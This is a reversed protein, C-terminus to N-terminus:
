QASKLVIYGTHRTMNGNNDWVHLVYFYSGDPLLKGTGSGKNAQGNFNNSQNHYNSTSYITGGWRNVIVIENRSYKEINEIILVDNKGDGNPSLGKHVRIELDPVQDDNLIAGIATRKTGLVPPQQGTAVTATKLKLAFYEDSEHVIDGIVPVEIEAEDSLAPIIIQKVHDQFDEGARARQPDKDAGAGEFADAFEYELVITRTSQRSLIVKFPMIEVGTNSEQVRATDKSFSIELADNDTVATATNSSSGKGYTQGAGSHPQIALNVFGNDDNTENDILNLIFSVETEGAPITVTLNAGTRPVTTTVSRIGDHQLSVTVPMDASPAQSAKLTVSLGAGETATTSTFIEVTIVDNDYLNVSATNQSAVPWTIAPLSASAATLQINVTETGELLIDDKPTINIVAEKSGAPITVTGSLTHYDTGAAATGSVTYTVTVPVSATLQTNAFRVRVSGATSPETADAIKEVLISRDASTENDTINLSASKVADLTTSVTNGFYVFSGATLTVQVTETGEVIHDDVVTVPVAIASTGAKIVATGSLASYDTASTATGSVSYLVTVDYPAPAAGTLQISFSGNASPEAGDTTKIVTVNLAPAPDGPINVQASPTVTFGAAIGTLRLIEDAETLHDQIATLDITVKNQDKAILAAPTITFDANVANFAGDAALNIAIPLATTIGVPLSLVMKSTNGEHLTTSDISITIQRNAPNLGTVDTIQIDAGSFTFGAPAGGDVRITEVPEIIGDKVASIDFEASSNTMAPITISVPIQTHDTDAATSTAATKSMTVTIPTGSVIGDPLKVKFDGTADEAISSGDPVLSIVTNLPDLSTADEISITIGTVSFGPATGSLQLTELLELINDTPATIDFTTSHQGGPITVSAPLISHDSNIASSLADKIINVQIDSAATLAGPLSVTITATGSGERITANSSTFSIAGGFNADQVDLLVTGIFTFGTSSPILELKEVPEIIADTNIDLTLTGNSSGAPITVTVPIGGAIDAANVAPTATGQTLQIVIANETTVGTPLSFTYVVQNGETAVGPGNVTITKVSVDTITVDANDSSTHGAITVTASLKLLESSEIINDSSVNVDFETDSDGAQITVTAPFNVDATTLGASSGTAKSLNITIAQTSTVGAPLSVKLKVMGGEAVTATAPTLTIDVPGSNDTITVTTGTVPIGLASSGDFVVTEDAELLVDTNAALTFTGTTAGANITITGLVGHETNGATSAANKSLTVVINGTSLVGGKLTATIVTSSGEAVNVPAASLEINASALDQDTIDFSVPQSFTFGGTASPTLILKETTEILNDTAPIFNVDVYAAGAPIVVAPLSQLDALAATSSGDRTLSVTIASTSTIGTPLAFRYTGTAGEAITAPGTVTITKNSVDTITVDAESASTYGFVTASSALKLLEAGEIVNDATGTVDFEIEGLGAPITVTAPFNVDGADLSASSGAGKSLTVIIPQISTIGAPLIAKIKVLGGEAVTATAPTLTITKNVNTGTADTITVTTGTVAIGQANTGEIVVTENAELLQDTGTTLTFAGTTSGANITITGLAGHETSGATSSANRSLAITLNNVSTIGGNLTATIVSSTGEAVTAPTASLTISAGTLDMDTIAFSVDQTFTYGGAASPTLTINELGEILNDDAAEIVVDVFGVGAPIVIPSINELDAMVATSSGDRNLTITIASTSTVGTPLAFHYTGTAGEAITAPGAVTITKDTADTITIDATHTSTYGFVTASSALKLLEAGEIVNDATGTVDFEIEGLGAPITVTAPFNVDSADLSASSGAGKSLTVVIPQISIIGAPLTAKIKVLGGETVTATSPTLTITKNANTGTADTITVTTGAVAIGEANTGEIVVTENTELLQDTGTTLTFTGTTSGANITITGLTGHEADAATSSSNKSLTVLINSASLVGGNLTATIVSSTGEAVSAPAASLAISAGALDQDTINFIVSQTFTYGGAASPTLVLNETSEILDGTVPKFDVDVYATNAPIVVSPLSQLDALAATSSGDRTLTITIASTSTVGTPLAFHYTGTTGEAITAPGTVTITKDTADTITIDAADTSTQGFATASSSLKLLEDAEILNDTEGEVDFEIEGLGAPITVTAPFNVDGADLSASSGAGKSLTVVIAQSTTIGTPLKAKIKIVGGEAVTATVPTLTIDAPGSNDTITVTAGTVAIGQANTGEVIVTEANELLQDTDTTLTFTGTTAGANITITGLTGHEADDATSGSNKSLTITLNNVSTIGGNLTATIVSSTGEAVSAPSASLTISAGALDMDTIAFSVDQTFTYGGAASPTLTINELGEILNDDAAEIVVDVFGVGAPIVIPAINELDALAATSSGDRTLTITIASTSTVGAPLAFHYTETTGEAITAPGTVTITKDTADTITIDAADTSTQGFATASSSLKLLEDTEILNDTEGTVDFEFENGGIPITVTAPFTVDSADLSASSGAGKSLTVVIAQSTTIGTPLKAKIKIVGGEAVTATVPTLIIDAPGSNDTITVTAGTVAIGQANTGEVIVTENTELLQDTGATLTFTGTTAGATITITGLTGHEADDATSAANKSLTITLNNVSTIGGNLTATIVSSTGEAVSAPSASLTISAGALDMDTIAFSVDQTFTYGGAASPTLTINELGEILNDDTAEIVVDVFGVGAPIVIPAINELDAMVATSSGDRTLTITIASTSTVGTPLAFHYTETTGEAITAPGTVTITRDTADTITIDAADTSTQGFATASSSLKLLEDTEILNDTEGEVDFEIEGTNVPITVTAPFTVDAIALSASSGAGRGLTVTIAQSTTIGDRLKAKIKIVGGEAGTATAPTLTVTKNANTGTVDTITIDTGQVTYGGSASGRVELVENPELIDDATAQINVKASTHGAEIHITGLASHDGAGATSTGGSSLVVDIDSTSTFGQLTATVETVTGEAVSLPNASLQILFGAPNTDVVDLSVQQSFTYDTALLQMNLHEPGEVLADSKADFSVDVFTTGPNITATLPYGGNFDAGSTTTGPAPTLTIDIPVMTTVGPPLAIKYDISNGETVTTAGTVVLATNAPTKSQDIISVSGNDTVAEDFVTASASIELEEVPEIINDTVANLLFDIEGAGAPIKVPLAYNYDGSQIGPDSGIGQALTITIEESTKIGDPLRVWVRVNNGENVNAADPEVRIQKNAVNASTVDNITFALGQVTFGTATGTLNLTEVRELLGDDTAAIDFTISPTGNLITVTSPTVAYDDDGATSGSGTQLTINIDATANGSELTATVTRVPQGELMVPDGVSFIIKTSAADTINIVRPPTTTFATGLINSSAVVTLAETSETIADAVAEVDFTVDNQGVPITVTAPLIYDGASVTTGAATSLTVVVPEQSSLGAKLKVRMQTTQGETINVLTQPDLIIQKNSPTRSSLDRIIISGNVFTFGSVNGTLVLTEDSELIANDGKLQITFPVFNANPMFTVTLPLPTNFDNLDSTSSPDMVLTLTFSSSFSLGAPLSIRGNINQTGAGENVSSATFTITFERGAPNDLIDLYSPIITYAGYGDSASADFFWFEQDELMGDDQLQIDYTADQGNAPITLSLPFATDLDGGDATNAPNIQNIAIVLPAETTVGAPLSATMTVTTGEAGQPVTFTIVRNDPNLHTTDTITIDTTHVKPDGGISTTAEIKLLEDTELVLDGVATLEFEVERQGAPITVQAPMGSYDSTEATSAGLKALDIVLPTLLLGGTLKVKVKTKEGEQLSTEEPEIFIKNEDDDVITYVSSTATGLQLHPACTPAVLSVTFSRNISSQTTNGIIEIPLQLQENIYTGPLIIIKDQLVRYDTNLVAPNAGSPTVQIELVQPLNFSANAVNLFLGTIPHAADGEAVDVTPAPNLNLEATEMMMNSWTIELNPDMMYLAGMEAADYGVAIQKTDHSIEGPIDSNFMNLATHVAIGSNDPVTKITNSLPYGNGARLDRDPVPGAYYSIFGQETTKFVHTGSLGSPCDAGSKTIGVMRPTYGTVSGSEIYENFQVDVELDKFGTGCTEGNMWAAESLYFHVWYPGGGSANPVGEASSLYYNILYYSKGATYVYETSLNYDANAASKFTTQTVVRWPNGASGDGVVNSINCARLYTPPTKPELIGMKREFVISTRLGGRDYQPQAPDLSFQDVGNRRVMVSTDTITIRLDGGTEGGTPNITVSPAQASAMGSLLTLVLLIGMATFRFKRMGAFLASDKKPYSLVLM